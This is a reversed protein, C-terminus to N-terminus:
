LAKSDLHLVAREAQGVRVEGFDVRKTVISEKENEM